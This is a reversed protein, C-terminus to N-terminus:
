PAVAEVLDLEAQRVAQEREIRELRLERTARVSDLLEFVDIEGGHFAIEAMEAISGLSSSVGSDFRALAARQAVLARRAADRAATLEAVSAEEAERAARAATEARQIQGQNQDILPIPMAFGGFLYGGEPWTSVITGLHLEFGPTAYVRERSLGAEAAEVERQAAVVRPHSRADDPLRAHPFEGLTGAARPYLTPRGLLAAIRGGTALVEAHAADRSARLAALEAEIRVADWRRGAGAAARTIIRQAITALRAEAEALLAERDQAALLALYARRLDLRAYARALDVVSRDAALRARAARVRADLQGPWPMGQSFTITTQSGGNTPEGGLFGAFDLYVEPNEPTGATVVDGEGADAALRAARLRPSEDLLRELEAFSVVETPVEVETDDVAEAQPRATDQALARRPTAWLWPALLTLLALLTLRAARPSRRM